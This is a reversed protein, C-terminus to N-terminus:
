STKLLSQEMKSSLAKDRITLRGGFQFGTRLCVPMPTERIRFANQNGADGTPSFNNEDDAPSQCSVVSPRALKALFKGRNRLGGSAVFGM